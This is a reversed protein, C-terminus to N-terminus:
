CSGKQLKYQLTSSNDDHTTEPVVNDANVIVRIIHTESHNTSVTLPINPSKVTQGASILQIPGSTQAQVQGNFIDQIIFTGTAQTTESGLNAIDVNVTFTSNCTPQAPDLRILGAVLNASTTPTATAPVPTFTPTVPPPPPAIRPLGATNGSIQVISPAIWGRGGNPLDVLLWNTGNSSLGVIPLVTGNSVTMIVGYLTSDGSRVNGNPVNVTVRPTNDLTPAITPAPPITPAATPPAAVTPPVPTPVVVFPPPNNEVRIPRVTAQIPEGSALNVTLRLEYVGDEATTTDWSALVDNSVSNSTPLSVPFWPQTEPPEVMDPGLARYEIFYNTMTPLNASGRVDLTSRVVYVPPPWNINADPNIQDTPGPSILPPTTPTASQALAPGSIVALALFLCVLLKARSM